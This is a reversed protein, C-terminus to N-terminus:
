ANCNDLDAGLFEHAHSRQWWLVMRMDVTVHALIDLIYAGIARREITVVRRQRRVLCARRFAFKVVGDSKLRGHHDHWNRAWEGFNDSLCFV